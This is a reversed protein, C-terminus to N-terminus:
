PERNGYPGDQWGELPSRPHLVGCDGRRGAHQIRSERRRQRGDSQDLLSVTEDPDITVPARGDKFGAPFTTQCVNGRVPDNVITFSTGSPKSWGDEVTANCPRSSLQTFGAPENLGAALSVPLQMLPNANPVAPTEATPSANCGTFLPIAALFSLAALRTVRSLARQPCRNM